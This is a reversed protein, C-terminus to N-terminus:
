KLRVVVPRSRAAIIEGFFAELEGYRAAEIRREKLRYDGHAVLTDGELRWSQTYRGFPSEVVQDEPLTSVEWSSPVKLRITTDRHERRRFVVPFKREMPPLKPGPTVMIEAFSILRVDAVDRGVEDMTVDGQATVVLRGDRYAEDFKANKVDGDYLWAWGRVEDQGSEESTAVLNYRLSSAFQGTTELKVVGKTAGSAEATLDFSLRKVNDQETSQATPYLEGGTAKVLLLEAEQDNHPLEGFPVTRTTPDAIVLEDGLNVALIAHNSQGLGPMLYKRPTGGHSYLSALYSEIGDVELMAKLLTAKDKCDGHRTKFTEAAEYPRWGGMGVEVAVYRVNEQVWDYLKQARVRPDKPADKLIEEVKARIAPTPKATGEQLRHLFQGYTAISDFEAQPAGDDDVWSAIRVAVMPVLDWVSPAYDEHKTRAIDSQEWVLWRGGSGAEVRPEMEYPGWAKSARHDLKWGEPEFVRFSARRLPYHGGFSFRDVFYSPKKERKVVRTEVVTGVPVAPVDLSVARADDYLVYGQILPFDTMKSVDYDKHKGDPTTIRVDASILDTFESYTTAFDGLNQGDETLVVLTRHETTMAIPAGSDFAYEVIRERVLEVADVEPHDDPKPLNSRDLDSFPATRCHTLLALCCFALLFRPVDSENLM